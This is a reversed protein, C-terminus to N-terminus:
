SKCAMFALFARGFNQCFSRAAGDLPDWWGSPFASLFAVQGTSVVHVCAVPVAARLEAVRRALYAERWVRPLYQLIVLGLGLAFLQAAECFYVYRSSGRTGHPCSPVELCHDPDLFLVQATPSKCCQAAFRAHHSRADDPVPDLFYQTRPLLGANELEQLGAGAAVLKQLAVFLERDCPAFRRAQDLYRHRRAYAAEPSPRLM